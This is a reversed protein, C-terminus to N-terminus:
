NDLHDLEDTYDFTGFQEVEGLLSNTLQQSLRANAPTLKL